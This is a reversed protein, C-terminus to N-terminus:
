SYRQKIESIHSGYLCSRTEIVKLIAEFSKPFRVLLVFLQIVFIKARSRALSAVHVYHHVLYNLVEPTGCSKCYFYLDIIVKFDNHPFFMAYFAHTYRPTLKLMLSKFGGVGLGAVMGYSYGVKPVVYRVIEEDIVVIKGGINMLCVIMMFHPVYTHSHEYGISILPKFDRTRYLGNSIFIFGNFNSISKSNFEILEELSSIKYGSFPPRSRSSSFKIFGCNRGYSRIASVISNLAQPSVQDDDSLLWIWDSEAIEFARLFNASMGLNVPNRYVVLRGTDMALALEPEKRFGFAYDASSANDVVLFRVYLVHEQHLLDLVVTKAKELRNYSPICITITAEYM